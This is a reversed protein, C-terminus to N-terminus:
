SDRSSYPMLHVSTAKIAAQLVTGPEIGLERRSTHTVHAALPFGCDLRVRVVPGVERVELVRAPLRNRASGSGYGLPLLLVEEPHVMVKVREGPPLETVAYLEAKGVSILAGEETREKVRGDLLNDAGLFAAVRESAPRRFVEDPRGEQVLEGKLLVAMRDAIELVEHHDHSVYVATIGRERVMDSILGLVERRSPLDLNSLPEDLLLLRPDLVLARGLSVKRAEGGSLTSANRDALHALGLRDLMAGVKEKRRKKPVGRVRLGYELNQWVSRGLLLPDQFVVAIERSIRRKERPGMASLRSGDWFVMEGRSPAELLAVLRLLTSKGAGNPGVVATVEGERVEWRGVRLITRGGYSQELGEAVLAPRM